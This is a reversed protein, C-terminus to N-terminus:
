LEVEMWNFVPGDKCVRKAQIQNAASCVCGYCAGVGCAMREELSVYGQVAQGQFQQKLAKLMPIPGCAYVYDWKGQQDALISTVFGQKGLTGDETAFQLSGLKRFESEWFVESKTKFGFIFDLQNRQSKITKALQYLPPVGIGGGVILIKAGSPPLPFGTGLPGLIDLQDGVGCRSLWLTGEGVVRFVITLAGKEANVDAISIPRRLLYDYGEGIRIDLFQGAKTERYPFEGALDLQWIDPALKNKKSIELLM